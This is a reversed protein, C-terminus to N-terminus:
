RQALDAPWVLERWRAAALVAGDAGRARFEIYARRAGLDHAQALVQLATTVGNTLQLAQRLTFHARGEADFAGAAVPEYGLETFLVFELAAGPPAGSLELPTSRDDGLPFCREDVLLAGEEGQARLALEGVQLADDLPMFFGGARAAVLPARERAPDAVFLLRWPWIPRPAEPFPARFRDAVGWSLAYAGDISAPFGAFLVPFGGPALGAVAARASESQRECEEAARRWEHTDQLAPLVYLGLLLWLPSRGRPLPFRALLAGALLALALWPVFLLRANQPELRGQALSQYLLVLALAAGAGAACVARPQAARFARGLWALLLLLLAGTAFSPVGFLARVSAASGAVLDTGSAPYGGVFTGLAVRRWTFAAVGALAAPLARRLSERLSDGRGLAFLACWLPALFGFEKSSAALFACPLSLWARAGLATFVSALLFVGALLDTRGSLWTVTGGQEPFWAVWLGAALAAISGFGLRRATGFALLACGAHLAVNFLRLCLPELGTLAVQLGWSLTVVPRWFRVIEMGFWPRNWDGFGGETTVRALVAADEAIWPARLTGLSPLLAAALVLLWLFRGRAAGNEPVEGASM